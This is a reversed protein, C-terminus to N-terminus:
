RTAQRLQKAMTTRPFGKGFGPHNYLVRSIMSFGNFIMTCFSSFVMSVMTVGHVGHYFGRVDHIFGLYFKLFDHSINCFVCFLELPQFPGLRSELVPGKRGNKGRPPSDITLNRSGMKRVQFSFKSLCSYSCSAESAKTVLVFYNSLTECLSCISVLKLSNLQSAWSFCNYLYLKIYPFTKGEPVAGMSLMGPDRYTKAFHRAQLAPPLM